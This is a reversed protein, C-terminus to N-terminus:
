MAAGNNEAIGGIASRPPKRDVLGERMGITAEFRGDLRGPADGRAGGCRNWSAIEGVPTSIHGCSISCRAGARTRGRSSEVLPEGRALKAARPIAQGRALFMEASEDLESRVRHRHEVLLAREHVRALRRRPDEPIRGLFEESPVGEVEDM